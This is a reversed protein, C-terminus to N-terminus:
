LENFLAWYQSPNEDSLQDLQNVLNQRFERIKTKREKRYYELM